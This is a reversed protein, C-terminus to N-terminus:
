AHKFESAVSSFFSKSCYDWPHVRLSGGFVSKIKKVISRGIGRRRCRRRVYVMIDNQGLDILAWGLVIDGEVCVIVKFDQYKDRERIRMLIGSGEVRRFTLGLLQRKLHLPVNSYDDVLLRVQDNQLNTNVKERIQTVTIM